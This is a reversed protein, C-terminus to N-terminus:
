VEDVDTVTVFVLVEVDNVPVFVLVVAVVALEVVKPVDEVVDVDVTADVVM